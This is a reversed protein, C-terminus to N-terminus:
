LPRDAVQHLSDPPLALSKYRYREVLEIGADAVWEVEDWLNLAALAETRRAAIVVALDPRRLGNLADEAHEFARNARQPDASALLIEGIRVAAVAMLEPIRLQGAIREATAAQALLDGRAAGVARSRNERGM